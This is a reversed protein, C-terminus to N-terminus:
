IGNKVGALVELVDENTPRVRYDVEVFRWRVVGERDIIFTAPHAIQRGRPDADNFLGYRDIVRHGPDTLFPFAPPISDEESIRDMM